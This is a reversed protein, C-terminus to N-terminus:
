YGSTDLSEENRERPPRSHEHIGGYPRNFERRNALPNATAPTTPHTAVHDTIKDKSGIAEIDQETLEKLINDEDYARVKKSKTIDEM